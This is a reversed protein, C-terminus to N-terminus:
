SSIMHFNSLRKAYPEFIEICRMESISSKKTVADMGRRKYGTGSVNRNPLGSLELVKGLGLEGTLIRQVGPDCVTLESVIYETLSMSTSAHLSAFEICKARLSQSVSSIDALLQFWNVPPLPGPTDCLSQILTQM